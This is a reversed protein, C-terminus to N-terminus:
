RRRETTGEGARSPRVRLGHLHLGLFQFPFPIQDHGLAKLLHIEPTLTKHTLSFCHQRKNLTQDNRTPARGSQPLLCPLFFGPVFKHARRFLSACKIPFSNCLVLKDMTPSHLPLSTPPFCAPFMFICM